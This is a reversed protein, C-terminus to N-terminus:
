PLWIFVQTQKARPLYEKLFEPYKNKLFEFTQKSFYKTRRYKLHNLMTKAGKFSRNGIQGSKLLSKLESNYDSVDRKVLKIMKEIHTDDWHSITYGKMKKISKSSINSTIKKLVSVAEDVNNSEITIDKTTIKIM